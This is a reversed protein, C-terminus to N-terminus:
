DDDVLFARVSLVIKSLPPPYLSYFSPTNIKFLIHSFKYGYSSTMTTIDGGREDLWIDGRNEQGSDLKTFIKRIHM